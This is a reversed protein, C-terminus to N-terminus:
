LNTAPPAISRLRDELDEIEPNEPDYHRAERIAALVGNSDRRESARRGRALADKAAEERDHASMGTIDPLAPPAVVVTGADPV